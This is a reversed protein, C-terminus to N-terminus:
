QQQRQRTALQGCAALERDGRAQRLTTNLGRDLLTQQFREIAQQSPTAFACGEFANFPILNIKAPIGHLLKALARADQQSHNLDRILIYEFTIRQRQDLPYERLCRMLTALPWKRNAPMIQNRKEDTAAHLSIALNIGLKRNALAEIGDVHGVTSLTIKRRSYDFTNPDLLTEIAGTVAAFNDLPEGMGMFVINTIRRENHAARMQAVLVQQLIESKSLHRGFGMTGTRCFRCAYRCGVQSSVCLTLRKPTPILVAEVISGDALQLALKETGDKSTVITTEPLPPLSFDAALRTRLAKSLNTMQDFHSINERFLWRQVQKARFPKQSLAGFYAVLEEHSQNRIDAKTM